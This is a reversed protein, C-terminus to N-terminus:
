NATIVTGPTKYVGVTELEASNLDKKSLMHMSAGSDAVFEREKAKDKEKLKLISRAMRWEDGLTCREQMETEEQSRDEFKPAYPSREHPINPQIVGLAPRKKEWFQIHRLANLSFKM